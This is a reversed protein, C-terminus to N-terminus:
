LLFSTCRRKSLSGLKTSASKEIETEWLEEYCKDKLTTHKSTALDLFEGSGLVTTPGPIIDNGKINKDNTKKLM